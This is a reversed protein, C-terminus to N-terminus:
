PAPQLDDTDVVVTTHYNDPLIAYTIEASKFTIVKVTGREENVCERPVFVSLPGGYSRPVTVTAEDSFMGKIVECKLERDMHNVNVERTAM